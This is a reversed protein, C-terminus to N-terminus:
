RRESAAATPPVGGRRGERVLAVLWVLMTATVLAVGIVWVLGAQDREYAIPPDCAYLVAPHLFSYFGVLAITGAAAHAALLRRPFMVGIPLVWCLYQASVSGYLAVFAVFVGLAAEPLTWHLWRKWSGLLLLAYVLLFSAKAIPIFVGWYPPESRLLEGTALWRLGRVLGIWGFDAFGGYGFLERVLAGLNDIAYPALLLAGPVTALLLFRLASRPSNSRVLFFPLLLVPFSKTAIGMALALASRDLRKQQHWYLALLSFFLAIPDFQGHFGTILISVPHLAYIWAPLTGFGLRRGWHVLLAVIAVDAALVPLKVWVAFGVAPVNRALWESGAEVWVWIPPYPYFRAPFEYPNLAGALIREGVKQYIRVDAVVRDAALVAALRVLLASGIPALPSWRSV